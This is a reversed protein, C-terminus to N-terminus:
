QRGAVEALTILLQEAVKKRGLRNLHGSDYTYQPAMFFVQQGNKLAYLMFGQPNVCEAGALDFLPESGAYSKRLLANYQQRKANRHLTTPRGLLAKALHKLKRKTQRPTSRVPATVHLFQVHPYRAKLQALTDAYKDFIARPDSDDMIDIYCFKFFAIDVKDGIGDSMIQEFATIKSLPRTNTGVTAHAFVPHDFDAAKNTEVINLKIEPHEQMIDKIGDIINYGVSQHGFFIKKRSLRRWYEAPVNDISPLIIRERTTRM